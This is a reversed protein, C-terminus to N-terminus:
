GALLGGREFVRLIDWEDYHSSTMVEGDAGPQWDVRWGDRDRRLTGGAGTWMEVPMGDHIDPIM